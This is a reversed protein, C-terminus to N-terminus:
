CNQQILRLAAEAVEDPSIIKLCKMSDCEVRNCPSCEAKKHLVIAKDSINRPDFRTLYGPGFIAVLPTKLIAAIHMPGTDNTIYLNCRKILATLEKITTRNTLDIIGVNVMEELRRFLDTEWAGGTIVFKCKVKGALADIVEAFNKLLWRHSHMGGPNIGIIIEERGIRNDELLRNVKIMDEDQIKLDINRDSIDGGLAKVMDLDYEMEHKQGIDTERIKVDFFFGRGQTDRGVCYRAGVFYFFLAMKMASGWSVLTRMNLAMDFRKKKLDMLFIYLTKLSEPKINFFKARENYFSFSIVEDIFDFEKVLEVARPVVLFSIHAQQYLRKLARLAPVSLLLDGIGGLNIILIRKAEAQIIKM